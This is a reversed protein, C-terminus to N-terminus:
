IPGFCLGGIFRDGDSDIAHVNFSINIAWDEVLRPSAETLVDGYLGGTM